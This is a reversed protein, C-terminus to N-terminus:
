ASLRPHGAQDATSRSTRVAEAFAQFLKRDAESALTRDEPHWQVAVAFPHDPKELAEIVGDSSVASVALGAGPRDVAQHHRSNVAHEGEGIIAALRTGGRVSVSHVARHRGPEDGTNKGRHVDTSALHQILTGGCAVNMLQMGRCIALVPVGGALAEGVLRSELKDREPDPEDSEPAREEGYLAPNVDTGGTMLLGDLGELSRPEDPSIRVPEIGAERMAREYAELKRALRFTIGAKM